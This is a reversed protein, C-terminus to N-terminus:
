KNIKKQTHTHTLRLSRGDCWWWWKSYFECSVPFPVLPGSGDVDVYIEARKVGPNQLGYAACSIPNLPTHCVAGSYGTGTCDCIFELSTQKCRGRHECPNPNCRDMIQCAARVIGEPYM